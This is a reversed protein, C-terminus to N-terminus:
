DTAATLVDGPMAVVEKQHRCADCRRTAQAIKEDNFLPQEDRAADGQDTPYGAEARLKRPAEHDCARSLHKTAGFLLGPGNARRIPEKDM